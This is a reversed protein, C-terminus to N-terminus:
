NEGHMLVAWWEPPSCSDCRLHDHPKGERCAFCREDPETARWVRLPELCLACLPPGDVIVSDGM